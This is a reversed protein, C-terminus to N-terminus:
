CEGKIVVSIIDSWSNKDTVVTCRINRGDVATKNHIILTARSNPSIDFQGQFGQVISVAGSSDKEGIREISDREWYVRFFTEGSLDFDWELRLEPFRGDLDKPTTRIATDAKTLPGRQPGPLTWTITSDVAFLFHGTLVVYM